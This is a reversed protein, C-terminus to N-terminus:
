TKNVNAIFLFDTFKVISHQRKRRKRAFSIARYNAYNWEVERVRDKDPSKEQPRFFESTKKVSAGSHVCVEPKWIVTIEGNSYEKHKEESM